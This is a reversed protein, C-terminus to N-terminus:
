RAKEERELAAALALLAAATSVVRRRDEHGEGPRGDGQDPVLLAASPPWGGDPLQRAELDAIRRALPAGCLVAVSLDAAATFADRPRPRPALWGRAAAAVAAPIGGSRALLELSRATAYADTTWWFATWAGNARRSRLCANRLLRVAWDPGGAEALALGALATVDAHAWAWSGFRLPDAFTHADGRPDLYPSLLAAGYGLLRIAWATSDADCATAGNFGWGERRARVCLAARAADVAEHAGGVADLAIGAMATPWCDGAGPELAYDRWMGDDDQHALLFAAGAAVEHSRTVM